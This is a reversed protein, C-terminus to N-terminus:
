RDSSKSGLKIRENRRRDDKTLQSLCARLVSNNPRVICPAVIFMRVHSAADSLATEQSAFAGHIHPGRPNGIYLFLSSQGNNTDQTKWAKMKQCQPGPAEQIVRSTNAPVNTESSGTLADFQASLRIM